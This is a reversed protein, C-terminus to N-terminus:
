GESIGPEGPEADIEFEGCQVGDLLLQLGHDRDAANKYGEASDAIIEGNGARIRWRHEGKSDKYKQIRM